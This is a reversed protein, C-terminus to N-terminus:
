QTLVPFSHTAIPVSNKMDMCPTEQLVILRCLRTPKHQLNALSQKYVTLEKLEKQSQTGSCLNRLSVYFLFYLLCCVFCSWIFVLGLNGFNCLKGIGASIGVREFRGSRM